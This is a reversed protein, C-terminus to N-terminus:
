AEGGQHPHQGKEGASLESTRRDGPGHAGGGAERKDCQYTGMVWHAHPTEQWPPHPISMPSLPAWRSVLPPSLFELFSVRATQLFGTFLALGRRGEELHLHSIEVTTAM